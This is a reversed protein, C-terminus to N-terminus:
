RFSANIRDFRSAAVASEEIKETEENKGEAIVVAEKKVFSSKKFNESVKGYIAKIQDKSATKLMEQVEEKPMELEAALDNVEKEKEAEEQESIVKEAIALAEKIKAIGGLGDVKSKFDAAKNLAEKIMDKTGLEEQFSTITRLSTELAEKVEEPSDGLEKFQALEEENKEAEEEKDKLEEPSGMEEYKALKELKPKLEDAQAELDKNEKELTDNDAKLQEVEENLRKVTTKLEQNENLTATVLQENLQAAKDMIFNEKNTSITESNKLLNLNNLSEALQPNAQLFGAELVFDWGTLDYADEDVAPVGDKDGAFTGNARSSVYLQCGARLLNNLIQGAPTNLVYAEGIGQGSEDIYAKKVIHSVIGERLAKDNIEVDHGITGFMLGRNMKETVSPTSLAKEWLGRSYYRNNRSIGEPVFFVGKVKALVTQGNVTENSETVDFKVAAISTIDRIQNKSM